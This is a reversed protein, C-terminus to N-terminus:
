NAYDGQIQSDLSVAQRELPTGFKPLGGGSEGGATKIRTVQLIIGTQHHSNDQPVVYDVCVLVDTLPLFRDYVVVPLNFAGAIKKISSKVVSESESVSSSRVDSKEPFLRLV